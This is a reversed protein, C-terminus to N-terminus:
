QPEEYFNTPFHAIGLIPEHSCHIKPIVPTRKIRNIKGSALLLADYRTECEVWMTVKLDVEHLM